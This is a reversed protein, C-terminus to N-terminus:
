QDPARLTVVTNTFVKGTIPFTWVCDSRILRLPPSTQINTITIINMTSIPAGSAPVDMAYNVNTSTWNTTTTVGNLTLTISNTTDSYVITQNGPLEDGTGPGYAVPFAESNWQACRAQEMGQQALSQAALSMSSWLAVRNAEVYGILVGGVVVALVVISVLSEVLTFAISSNRVGNGGIQKFRVLM